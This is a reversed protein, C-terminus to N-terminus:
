FSVEFLCWFSPINRKLSIQSIVSLPFTEFLCGFLCKTFAVHLAGLLFWPRSQNPVSKPESSPGLTSGFDMGFRNCLPRAFSHQFSNYLHMTGTSYQTPPANNNYGLYLLLVTLPVLILTVTSIDKAFKNHHLCLGGVLFHFRKGFEGQPLIDSLVRGWFRVTNVNFIITWPSELPITAWECTSYLNSQTNNSGNRNAHM